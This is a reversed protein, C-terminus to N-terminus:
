NMWHSSSNLSDTAFDTSVSRTFRDNRYPKISVVVSCQWRKKDFCNSLIELIRTIRENVFDLPNTCGRVARLHSWGSAIGDQNRLNEVFRSCCKEPCHRRLLCFPKSKYNVVQQRKSM